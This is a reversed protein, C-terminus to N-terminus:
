FLIDHLHMWARHIGHMYVVYILIVLGGRVYVYLDMLYTKGHFDTRKEKLIYKSNLIHLIKHIQIFSYM